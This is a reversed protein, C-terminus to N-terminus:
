DYYMDQNMFVANMIEINVVFIGFVAVGRWIDLIEIRTDPTVPNLNPSKM